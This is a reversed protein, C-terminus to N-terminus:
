RKKCFFKTFVDILKWFIFIVTSVINLLPIITFIGILYYFESNKKRNLFLMIISLFLLIIYCIYCMWSLLITRKSGIELFDFKYILFSVFFSIKALELFVLLILIIKIKKNNNKNKIIKNKQM